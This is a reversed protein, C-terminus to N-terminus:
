QLAGPDTQRLAAARRQLAAIRADMDATQATVPTPLDVLPVLAPYPANRAADSVTGELAPVDACAALVFLLPLAHRMNCVISVACPDRCSPSKM